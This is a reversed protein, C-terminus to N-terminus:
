TLVTTWSPSWEFFTSYNTKKLRRLAELHELGHNEIGSSAQGTSTPTAELPKRVHLARTMKLASIRFGKILFAIWIELARTM